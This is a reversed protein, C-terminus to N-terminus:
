SSSSCCGAGKQGTLGEKPENASRVIESYIADHYHMEMTKGNEIGDVPM